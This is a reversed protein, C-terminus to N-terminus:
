AKPPLPPTKPIVPPEYGYKKGLSSAFNFEVGACGLFFDGISKDDNYRFTM